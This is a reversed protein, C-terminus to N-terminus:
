VVSLTVAAALSARELVAWLAADGGSGHGGASESEGGVSYDGDPDLNSRITGSFLTPEQPLIAVARRLESVAM